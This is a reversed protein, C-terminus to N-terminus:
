NLHSLLHGEAACIRRGVQLRLSILLVPLLVMSLDTKSRYLYRVEKWSLQNQGMGAYSHLLREWRALWSDYSDALCGVSPPLDFQCLFDITELEWGVSTSNQRLRM